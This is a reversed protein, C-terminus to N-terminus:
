QIVGIDPRRLALGGNRTALLFAQNVSMPNDNAIKWSELTKHFFKLRLSQLWIRAQGVIDTSYTFHTDVGIAAPDQTYAGFHHSHGYHMESEPTTSVYQDFQRLLFVDQPTIFSCHSFVIPFSTNLFDLSNLLRPSNESIWPGGLNHTTFISINSSRY